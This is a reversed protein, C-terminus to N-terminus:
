PVSVNGTDGLSEWPMPERQRVEPQMFGVLGNESLRYAGSIRLLPYGPAPDLLKVSKLCVVTWVLGLGHRFMLEKVFDQRLLLASPGTSHLSPDFAVVEGAQDLFDAAQGRWRLAGREVLRQAPLQRLGNMLGREDGRDSRFPYQIAVPEICVPGYKSHLSEGFLSSPLSQMYHTAPAWGHEGVFVNKVRGLDGIGADVGGQEKAWEVFTEADKARTLYGTISWAIEGTEVDYPGRGVPADQHLNYYCSGNIWTTEEGPKTVMLLDEIKPLDDHQVVWDGLQDFDVWNDYRGATWWVRPNRWMYSLSSAIPLTGVVTPDIDRLGNQWPGVYHHEREADDHYERYQFNDAILALVERYAIKQYKRGMSEKGSWGTQDIDWIRDFAGFRETTWGLNFVRWLVYREIQSGDFVFQCSDSEIERASVSSEWWSPEDLRLSLWQGSSEWTKRTCRRLWGSFVSHGIHNRTWDEEERKHPNHDPSPLLPEVEEETPFTPPKSQYPPRIRTVDVDIRAKLYIAREVVGRAYDRLLINAPPTGTAFVKDYVREALAKVEIPDHSRTAVGFAVSYVRETIYPDDVNALEEVLRRAAELRGTLLNVLARTAQHRVALNSAALMWALTVACLDILDEDLQSTPSVALAWDLLRRAPGGGSTANHLHVSWWADREAMEDQRLRADLFRANLPHEPRTALSLLAHLIVSRDRAEPGLRAKVLGCTRASITAVDRWVLSQTFAGEFGEGQALKPVVDIVEGGTREPLQICLAELMGRTEYGGEAVEFLRGGPEFAAAANAPDFDADLLVETLLHDALREYAIFVIERGRGIRDRRSAEQVLIGEVVLIRYLSEEFPRGPLFGNVMQEAADVTMWRESVSPFARVLARLANEAARNWEPLALKEAVRRNISSIYLEFIATIGNIDQRLRTAGQGQLGACLTKLFLPNDFEPAVLPTSPLELGFHKFYTRMADYSREGFGRHTAVVASERVSVPILKDYSSRVSLVVGIWDSRAFHALFAPLHTPWISLGKGENLADILVLARVSAAQAACELAGVFEAASRDCADLLEAAQGWPAGDGTFCQGLLLVTPRGEGLRHHAVDCLLHTKGTGAQGSVIMVRAGGWRQAEVLEGRTKRLKESFQEFQYRYQSLVRHESQRTLLHQVVGDVVSEVAAIKNAMDEFPLTGSPQVDVSSGATVIEEIGMGISVKGASVFADESVMGIGAEVEADREKGLRSPGYSCASSWDAELRRISAITRDFFRRTRGFAEFRGAIPLDVHVEPTYRPGATDRAEEFRRAFWNEDFGTADFWFQVRGVHEPKTLRELLESSGWYAFEVTMGRGSAWAKWKEVRADWKELASQQGPVRADPLDIPLCVIYRTLQPHKQLATRVSGDLQTWSSDGLTLFYKAQWAWESGSGSIAYCEVGADPNGKRIFRARNGVEWRALQACLEEFGKDRGGNLPRIARWDVNM